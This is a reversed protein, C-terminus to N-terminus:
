SPWCNMQSIHFTNRKRWMIWFKLSSCSKLIWESNSISSICCSLYYNTSWPLFTIPISKFFKSDIYIFLYWCLFIFFVVPHRFEFYGCKGFTSMSIISIVSSFLLVSFSSETNKSCWFSHKRFQIKAFDTPSLLRKCQPLNEWSIM